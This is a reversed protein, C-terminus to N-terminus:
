MREGPRHGFREAYIRSFYGADEFGVAASLQSITGADGSELIEKAKFLRAERLYKHPTLGTYAKIRRYFQSRSLHMEDALRDITFDRKHLHLSMQAEVAKLWKEDVSVIQEGAEAIAEEKAPNRGILNNIRIRLEETDFPKTIYDDVGIRLGTLKDEHGARATLLIIPLASFKPTERIKQAFEFGDMEPMMVDSIICDPLSGNQSMEELREIARLGNESSTVHYEQLENELYERM